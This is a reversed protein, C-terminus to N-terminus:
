STHRRFHIGPVLFPVRDAYASFSERYRRRLYREERRLFLVQGWLFLPLSALLMGWSRCLLVVGLAALDYGFFMPHRSLGYVGGTVLRRPPQRPNPTGGGLRSLDRMSRWIFVLGAGIFALAAASLLLSSPLRQLGLLLDVGWGSVIVGLPIVVWYLLADRVQYKVIGPELIRM